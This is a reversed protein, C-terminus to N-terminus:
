QLLKGIGTVGLIKNISNNIIFFRNLTLINNLTELRLWNSLDNHKYKAKTLSIITM